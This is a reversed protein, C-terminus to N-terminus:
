IDLKENWKIPNMKIYYQIRELEDYDRIIRDHFRAQWAFDSEPNIKNIEFTCRGKFWRIVRSLNDHLLPNNNKTIGGPPNNNTKNTEDTKNTKGTSVRNIADRGDCDGDRNKDIWLVGHIHNPMIIMEDLRIFSFQKPILGWIKNVIM